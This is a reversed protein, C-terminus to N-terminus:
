KKNQMIKENNEIYDELYHIISKIRNEIYLDKHFKTFIQYLKKFMFRLEIMETTKAILKKNRM